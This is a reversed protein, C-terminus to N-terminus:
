VQKYKENKPSNRPYFPLFLGFHFIDIVDTMCWIEPKPVTHLAYSWLKFSLIELPKKIKKFKENKPISSPLLVFFQGFHFIIVDTLHLIEPVTYGIIMIKPGSIYFSSIELNKKMNKFNENKPNHPYFALFYGLIIFVNLRTCKMHWSDYMMHNENIISMNLIIIGGPTKKMKEVNQNEPNNSSYFPWFYGSIVFFM